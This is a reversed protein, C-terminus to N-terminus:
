KKNELCVYTHRGSVESWQEGLQECDVKNAMEIRELGSGRKSLILYYEEASAVPIALACSIFLM